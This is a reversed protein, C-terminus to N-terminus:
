AVKEEKWKCVSSGDVHVFPFSLEVPSKDDGVYGVFVVGASLSLALLELDDRRGSVNGLIVICSSSRVGVQLDMLVGHCILMFVLVGLENLSVSSLVRVAM